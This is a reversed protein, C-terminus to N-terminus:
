LHHYIGIIPMSLILSWIHWCYADVKYTVLHILSLMSWPQQCHDSSPSVVTTSRHDILSSLIVICHYNRPSLRVITVSWRDLSPPYMTSRHYHESPSDVIITLYHNSSPPEVFTRCHHRLLSRVIIALYYSIINNPCYVLSRVIIITSLYFLSPPWTISRCNHIFSM